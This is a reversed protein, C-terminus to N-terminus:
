YYEIDANSKLEQILSNIAEQQKQQKLSIIIQQEIESYEPVDESSQQKYTEYFEKAEEETVNYEQDKLENELYNQTAIQEKTNEIEDDYSAGRMEIQQKYDELTMNQMALQSEIMSETEENTVTIEKQQVEQSLIEQNIAQELAEEESIEQGQQLLSQQIVNVEDSTIEEGNVSAVANESPKENITNNLFYIGVSILLLVAIVGIVLNKSIKVKEKQDVMKYM